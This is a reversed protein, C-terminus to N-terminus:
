FLSFSISMFGYRWQVWVSMGNFEIVYAHVDQILLQYEPHQIGFLQLFSEDVITNQIEGSSVLLNHAEQVIAKLNESPSPADHTILSGVMHWILQASIGIDYLSQIHFNRSEIILRMVSPSGISKQIWARVGIARNIRHVKQADMHDQITLFRVLDSIIQLNNRITWHLVMADLTDFLNRGVAEEICEQMHYWPTDYVRMLEDFVAADDSNKMLFALMPNMGSNLKLYNATARPIQGAGMNRLSKCTAFIAPNGLSVGITQILEVPLDM